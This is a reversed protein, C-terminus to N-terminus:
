LNQLFEILQEETNNKTGYIKHFKQHCEECFTIGNDIAFRLEIYDSFNKIHHANLNGGTNDGCKQCTWNDRAYVSERWLRYEISHRIRINYPTRGDIWNHNNEGIISESHKRRTAKSKKFGLSHKNGILNKRFEESKPKRLKEKTVESHHKGLMGKHNEKLRRKHEKTFPPKKKDRLAKGINEKHEKTQKYGIATM